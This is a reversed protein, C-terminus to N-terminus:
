GSNQNNIKLIYNAIELFGEGGPKSAVYKVTKKVEESADSPCASLIGFNLMDLDNEGDGITAVEEEKFGLLESAIKVGFGKGGMEPLIHLAYGSWLVKFGYKNSNKEIENILDKIKSKDMNRPIFFALDHFRFKNQWSEILGMKLAIDKLEDPPTKNCIHKYGHFYIICGNEAIAPGSAGIYGRLGLTVPLSNGSILSVKIGNSELLRIGNIAEISIRVDGRRITLTGDVDTAVYKIM